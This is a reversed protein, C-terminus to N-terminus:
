AVMSPKNRMPQQPWCYLLSLCVAITKVPYEECDLLYLVRIIRWKHRFMKDATLPLKQYKSIAAALNAFNADHLLNPKVRGLAIPLTMAAVVATNKFRFLVRHGGPGRSQQFNASHGTATHVRDCAMMSVQEM